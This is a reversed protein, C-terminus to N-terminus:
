EKVEKGVLARIGMMIIKSKEEETTNLSKVKRIFEGKLSIDNEYKLYDIKLETKDVIKFFYYRSKMKQEIYSSDIETEELIEGELVVKLLDKKPIEQIANEVKEIIKDSDIMNALNVHIEHLTRKTQSIFKSTIQHNEIDLVVFGKKGCEDFGRGELCGSYCYVGRYDLKECKYEHIHGLALYDIYKNQLANLWILEGKNDTRYGSIQGHMVVINIENENLILESYIGSNDEKGFEIGTIVVNDYTYGSWEQCFLKLNDPRKSLSKFFDDKDHNGQLYLFDINGANRIANLVRNKITKQQNQATDFLDGAIIVIKVENKIAYEVMNEFTSLIEYRREKAQESTLNTEMKSDLHLDACHIIRM